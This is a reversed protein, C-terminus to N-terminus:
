MGGAAALAAIIRPDNTTINVKLELPKDGKTVDVTTQYDKEAIEKFHKMLGETIGKYVQERHTSLSGTSPVVEAVVPADEQDDYMSM